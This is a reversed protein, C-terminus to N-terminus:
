EHNGIAMADFKLASMALMMPDPPTNNKRSHYYAFPTGQITDGSDILVLQSDDKRAQAILTAAKALGVNAPRQTYYDFPFINGHLDTTAVITVRTRDGPAATLASAWAIFLAVTFVPGLRLTPAAPLNM